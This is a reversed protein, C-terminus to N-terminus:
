LSVCIFVVAVQIMSLSLLWVSADGDAGSRGLTALDVKFVFLLAAVAPSSM